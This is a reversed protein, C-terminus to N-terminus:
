EQWPLGLTAHLGRALEVREAQTLRADGHLLKYSRPPMERALVQQGSAMSLDFRRNWESFNMVARGADVDRQMAWSMPAVKAYWPWRTENSHCDFCARKALERTRPHDWSPEQVIPPNTHVRGYPVLQMLGFLGLVVGLTIALRRLWRLATQM